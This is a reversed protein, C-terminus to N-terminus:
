AYSKHLITKHTFVWRAVKRHCSLLNNRYRTCKLLDEIWFLLNSTRTIQFVCTICILRKCFIEADGLTSKWINTKSVKSSLLTTLFAMSTFIMRWCNCSFLLNSDEITYAGITIFSDFIALYIQHFMLELM